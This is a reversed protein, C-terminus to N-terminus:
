TAGFLECGIKEWSTASLIGQVTEARAGGDLLIRQVGHPFRPHCLVELLDDIFVTCGLRAVRKVKDDRSSEFFVNAEPISLGDESFFRRSSMWRHAAERMDTGTTDRRAYQTKHSVIFVPIGRERCSRLVGEVGPIVEAENMAPGYVEAQLQQWKVEGNELARVVDRVQDKTLEEAPRLWGRSSARSQFVSDYCAITNDFDVGLRM